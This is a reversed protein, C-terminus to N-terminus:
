ANYDKLNTIIKNKFLGNFDSLCDMVSGIKLLSSLSIEGTAEFRRISAYSVGSRVAMEKQSLRLDKRRQRERKVLEALVSQETEANVFVSIDFNSKM